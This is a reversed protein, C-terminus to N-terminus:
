LEEKRWHRIKEFNSHMKFEIIHDKWEDGIIFYNAAEKEDCLMSLYGVDAINIGMLQCALWDAAVPNTSAIAFHAPVMEGDIPGDGEMAEFGDLVALKFAIKEYLRVINKSIIEPGQHIMSKYNRIRRFIRGLKGGVGGVPRLLPGVSINKIAGTYVVENHTKPPSVSIVCDSDLITKAVRAKIPNGNKDLIEVEGFTDANLDILALDYRDQIDLYGFNRFATMTDGTGTGEALTIQGAVHPRIFDILSRLTDVHSAALQIKDTVCNPKIVVRKANRVVSVVESKILSLCREINYTRNDSKIFSIKTM